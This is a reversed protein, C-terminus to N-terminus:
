GGTKRIIKQIPEAASGTMSLCQQSLKRHGQARQGFKWTRNGTTARQEEKEHHLEALHVGKVLLRSRTKSFGVTKECYAQQGVMKECYAQPTIPHHNDKHKYCKPNELQCIYQEEQKLM